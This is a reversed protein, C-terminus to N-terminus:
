SNCLVSANLMFAPPELSSVDDLEEELELELM